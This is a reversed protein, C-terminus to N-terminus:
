SALAVTCRCKPTPKGKRSLAVGYAAQRRWHLHIKRNFDSVAVGDPDLTDTAEPLKDTFAPLSYVKVVDNAAWTYEGSSFERVPIVYTSITGSYRVSTQGKFEGTPAYVRVIFGSHVDSISGSTPNIQLLHDPTGPAVILTGQYVVTGTFAVLYGRVLHQAARLAASNADMDPM